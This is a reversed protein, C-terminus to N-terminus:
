DSSNSLYIELIATVQQFYLNLAKTGDEVRKLIDLEEISSKDVAFGSLIGLEMVTMGSFGIPLYSLSCYATNFIHLYLFFM